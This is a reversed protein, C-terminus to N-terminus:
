FPSIGSSNGRKIITGGFYSTPDKARHALFQHHGKGPSMAGLRWRMREAATGNGDWLYFGKDGARTRLFEDQIGSMQVVAQSTEKITHVQADGGILIFSLADLRKSAKKDIGLVKRAKPSARIDGGGEERGFRSGVVIAVSGFCTAAQLSLFWGFYGYRGILRGMGMGALGSAVYGAATMIGGATAVIEFPLDTPITYSLLTYNGLMFVSTLLMLFAVLNDGAGGEASTYYLASLAIIQFFSFLLIPNSRNGQFLNDSALGCLVGGVFGGLTVAGGILATTDPSLPEGRSSELFSYIWTIL